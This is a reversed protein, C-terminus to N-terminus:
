ELTALPWTRNRTPVLARREFSSPGQGNLCGAFPSQDAATCPRGAFKAPVIKSLKTQPLQCRSQVIAARFRRKLEGLSKARMATSGRGDAPPLSCHLSFFVNGRDHHRRAQRRLHGLINTAALFISLERGPGNQTFRFSRSSRPPTRSREILTTL